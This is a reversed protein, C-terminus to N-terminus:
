SSDTSWVLDRIAVTRGTRVDHVPCRGIADRRAIGSLFTNRGSRDRSERFKSQVFSASAALRGFPAACDGRVFFANVGSSNCGLFVYGKQAALDRLAALSAGFYLKSHHAAARDFAPDYPVTIAHEDGFVSNYECVVIRPSVVDIAKWLWYDNGDIDVSLLGIDGHIGAKAILANINEATVTAAVSRLDFMESIPDKQIRRINSDSSDLVLGTWNRRKLLFRTNAETYDQVGFEVFVKNPITARSVLYEIIGDEGWQSYVGFEAQALSTIEGLGAIREAHLGGLQMASNSAGRQLDRLARLMARPAVAARVIGSLIRDRM